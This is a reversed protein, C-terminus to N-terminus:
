PAIELFRISDDWLVSCIKDAVSVPDLCPNHYIEQYRQPDNAYRNRNFFTKTLGLRVELIKVSPYEVLLMQGFYELSKKTLSYVLDNPYYHRNNTSTVNVIKCGPNIKLAQQALLVPSVLNTQMIKVACVPDHDLFLTKGGIGTGACNILVDFTDQIYDAAAWPDSLDLAQRHPAVVTNHACLRQQLAQGVGSSGGTLFIKKM